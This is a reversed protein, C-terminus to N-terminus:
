EDVRNVVTSKEMEGIVIMEPKKYEKKM